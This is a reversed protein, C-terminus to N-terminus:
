TNSLCPHFCLSTSSSYSWFPYLISLGDLTLNTMNRLSLSDFLAYPYIGRKRLRRIAETVNNKLDQPHMSCISRNIKDYDKITAFSICVCSVCHNILYNKLISLTGSLQTLKLIAYFKFSM